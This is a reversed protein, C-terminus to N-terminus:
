SEIAKKERAMRKSKDSVFPSFTWEKSEDDKRREYEHHQALLFQKESPTLREYLKM